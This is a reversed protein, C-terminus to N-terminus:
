LHLDSMLDLFKRSILFILLSAIGIKRKYENSLEHTFTLKDFGLVSVWCLIVLSM